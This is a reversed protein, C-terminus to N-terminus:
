CRDVSYMKCAQMRTNKSTWKCNCYAHSVTSVSRDLSVVTHVGAPLELELETEPPGPTQCPRARSVPVRLLLMWRSSRVHDMSRQRSSERDSRVRSGFSYARMMDIWRQGASADIESEEKRM